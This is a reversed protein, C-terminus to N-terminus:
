VSHGIISYVSWSLCSIRRMGDIAFAAMLAHVSRPGFVSAGPGNPLERAAPAVVPPRQRPRITSADSAVPFVTNTPLTPPPRHFVVAMLELVGPQAITSSLSEFKHM